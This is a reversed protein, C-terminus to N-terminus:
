ERPKPTIQDPIEVVKEEESGLKKTAISFKVYSKNKISKVFFLNFVANKYAPKTLLPNMLGSVAEPNTSYGSITINESKHDIHVENLWITSPTSEALGLLYESFGRRATLNELSDLEDKKTKFANELNNVQQALPIESDLLPYKKALTNYDKLVLILNKKSERLSYNVQLKFFTVLLSILILVTFTALVIWMILPASIRSSKKPLANLFNIQQM